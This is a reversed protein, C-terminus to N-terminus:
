GAIWDVGAQRSQEMEEALTRAGELGTSAATRQETIMQQASRYADEILAMREDKKELQGTLAQFEARDARLAEMDAHMQQLEAKLPARIEDIQAARLTAPAATRMRAWVSVGWGVFVLVLALIKEWKGPVTGEGPNLRGNEALLSVTSKVALEVWIRDETPVQALVESILVDETTTVVDFVADGAMAAIPEVDQDIVEEPSPADPDEQHLRDVEIISTPQEAQAQQEACGALVAMLVFASLM